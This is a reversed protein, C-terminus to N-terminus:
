CLEVTCMLVLWTCILSSLQHFQTKASECGTCSHLRPFNKQAQAPRTHSLSVQGEQNVKNYVWVGRWCTDTLSSFIIFLRLLFIDFDKHVPSCIVSMLRFSFAMLMRHANLSQLPSIYFLLLEFNLHEQSVTDAKCCKADSFVIVWPGETQALSFWPAVEATLVKVGNASRWYVWVYIRVNRDKHPCEYVCEM